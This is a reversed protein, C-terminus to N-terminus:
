VIVVTIDVDPDCVAAENFALVVNQVAPPANSARCQKITTVTFTNALVDLAGQSLGTALVAAAGSLNGPAFLRGLYSDEGVSLENLFEAVAQKILDETTGVYGPLTLVTLELTITVNTLVFFNITNSVGKPDVIVESTTGFTGTGPTKKEAIATAIDVPDGGAVVNSISHAPIGNADVADSDNEYIASRRVGAVSAVAAFIADLPSEAALSVSQSQRLRLTADTEVADGPLAASANTVSQWGQTPTLIETITGSGATTAGEATCTATVDVTGGGPITTPSPLAWRTGLQLNDGVLGNNIITGAQGVVTVTVESNTAVNRNIGNIKVVSSLGVGQATAPSFSLYAAQALANADAMAQAFVAIMQGDQSDPDLNVDSGYINWIAIRFEQLIDAFDPVTM